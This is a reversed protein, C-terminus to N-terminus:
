ADQADANSDAFCRETRARDRHDSVQERAVLAYFLAFNFGILLSIQTDSVGFEEKLPAVLLALIVRDVFAVIYLAGLLVVAYWATAGAKHSDETM